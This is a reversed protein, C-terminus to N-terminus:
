TGGSQLLTVKFGPQFEGRFGRVEQYGGRNGGGNWNGGSAGFGFGGNGNNMGGSFNGRSLGGGRGYYTGRGNKGFGGNREGAQNEVEQLRRAVEMAIAENRREEEDLKKNKEELKRRKKYQNNKTAKQEEERLKEDYIEKKKDLIKIKLKREEEKNKNKTGIMNVKMSQLGERMTNALDERLWDTTVQNFAQWEGIDDVGLEKAMWLVWIGNGRERDKVRNLFNTLMVEDTVGMETGLMRLRRVFDETAECEGQVARHFLQGRM